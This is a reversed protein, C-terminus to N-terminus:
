TTAPTAPSAMAQSLTVLPQSEAKSTHRLRQVLLIHDIDDDMEVVPTERPRKEELSKLPPGLKKLMVWPGQTHVVELSKD